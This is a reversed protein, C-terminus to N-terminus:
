LGPCVQWTGREDDQDINHIITDRATSDNNLADWVNVGDLGPPPEVGSIFKVLKVEINSNISIM